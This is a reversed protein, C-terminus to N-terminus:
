RKVKFSNITEISSRMPVISYLFFVSNASRSSSSVSVEYANTINLLQKTQATIGAFGAGFPIRIEKSKAKEVAEELESFLLLFFAQAYSDSM